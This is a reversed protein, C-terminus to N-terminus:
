WVREGLSDLMWVHAGKSDESSESSEARDERSGHRGGLIAGDFDAVDRDRGGSGSGSDGGHVDINDADDVLDV